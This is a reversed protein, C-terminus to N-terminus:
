SDDFITDSIVALSCLHKYSITESVCLHHSVNLLHSIGPSQHKAGILTHISEGVSFMMLNNLDLLGLM